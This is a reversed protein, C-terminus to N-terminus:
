IGDTTPIIRSLLDYCQNWSMKDSERNKNLLKELVLTMTSLLTNSDQPTFVTGSVHLKGLHGVSVVNFSKEPVVSGALIRGMFGYDRGLGFVECTNDLSTARIAPNDGQLIRLRINEIDVLLHSKHLIDAPQDDPNWEYQNSQGLTMSFSIAHMFQTPVKVARSTIIAKEFQPAICEDKALVEEVDKAHHTGNLGSNESSSISLNGNPQYIDNARRICTFDLSEVPRSPTANAIASAIIAMSHTNCSKVQYLGSPSDHQSHGENSGELGAVFPMGFGSESGQAIVRSLRVEPDEIWAAYDSIKAKAVGDPTCDIVVDANKMARTESEQILPFGLSKFLDRDDSVFKGGLSSLIQVRESGRASSKSFTVSDIGLDIGPITRLSLLMNVLPEGITGIGRVHVKLKRTSM